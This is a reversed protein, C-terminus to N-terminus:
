AGEGEGAGGAPERGSAERLDEPRDADDLVAPDDVPVRATRWGRTRMWGRLGEPWDSPAAAAEVIRRPAIWLPHGGRGGHEAVAADFGPDVDALAALFRRVTEAGIRPADVPQILVGGPAGAALAALGARVSALMPADPDVGRVVRVGARDAVISAAEEGSAGVVVVVESVGGDRLAEVVRRLLPVGGVVLLAKPGGMRRGRGAAPVVAAVRPLDRGSRSGSEDM